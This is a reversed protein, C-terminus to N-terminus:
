WGHTINDSQLSVGEKKEVYTEVFTSVDRLTKDYRIASAEILYGLM